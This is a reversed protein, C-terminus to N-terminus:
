LKSNTTMSAEMFSAKDWNKAALGFILAMIIPVRSLSGFQLPCPGKAGVSPSQGFSILIM